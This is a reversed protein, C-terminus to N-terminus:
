KLYESREDESEGSTAPARRELVLTAEIKAKCDPYGEM